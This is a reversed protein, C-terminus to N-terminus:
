CFCVWFRSHMVKQVRKTTLSVWCSAVTMWFLVWPPGLAGSHGWLTGLLQGFPGWLDGFPGFAGLVYGLIVRFHHWLPGLLVEPIKFTLAKQFM